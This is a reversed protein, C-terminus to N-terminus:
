LKLTPFYRHKVKQKWSNCVHISCPNEEFEGISFIGPIAKETFDLRIAPEVCFRKRFYALRRIEVIDASVAVLDTKKADADAYVGSM